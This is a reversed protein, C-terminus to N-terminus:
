FTDAGLEVLWATVHVLVPEKVPTFSSPPQQQDPTASQLFAPERPAESQRSCFRHEWFTPSAPEACPYGQSHAASLCDSDSKSGKAAPPSRYHCELPTDDEGWCDGAGQDLPWKSDETSCCELFGSPPTMPIPQEQSPPQFITFTERGRGTRPDPEDRQVADLEVLGECEWPRPGVLRETIDGHRQIRQAGDDDAADSPIMPLPRTLGPPTGTRGPIPSEPIEEDVERRVEVPSSDLESTPQAPSAPTSVNCGM